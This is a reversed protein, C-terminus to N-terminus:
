YFGKYVRSLLFAVQPEAPTQVATEADIWDEDEKGSPVAQWQGETKVSVEEWGGETRQRKAGPQAAINAMREEYQRM